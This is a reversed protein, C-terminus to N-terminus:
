DFAKKDRQKTYSGGQLITASAWTERIMAGQAVTRHLSSQTHLDCVFFRKAKPFGSNEALFPFFRCLPISIAARHLVPPCRLLRELVPVIIEVLHHWVM